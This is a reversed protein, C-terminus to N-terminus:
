DTRLHVEVAAIRTLDEGWVLYQRAVAHENEKSLGVIRFRRDIVDDTQMVRNMYKVRMQHSYPHKTASPTLEHRPAYDVWALNKRVEDMSAYFLACGHKDKPDLLAMWGQEPRHELYARHYRDTGM